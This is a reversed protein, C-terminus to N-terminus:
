MISDPNLICCWTSRYGYKLMQKGFPLNVKLTSIATSVSQCILTKAEHTNNPKASIFSSLAVLSIFVKIM